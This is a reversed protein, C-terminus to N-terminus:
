TIVGNTLDNHNYITTDEKMGYYIVKIQEDDSQGIQRFDCMSYPCLMKMSKKIFFFYDMQEAPPISAIIHLHPNYKKMLEQTYDYNTKLYELEKSTKIYYLHSCILQPYIQKDQKNKFYEDNVFKYKHLLDNVPIKCKISHYTPDITIMCNLKDQNNMMM